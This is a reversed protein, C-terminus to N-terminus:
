VRRMVRMLERGKRGEYHQTPRWERETEFLGDFMADLEDLTVGYPPPEPIEDEDWPNLFFIALLHGGPRLAVHLAAAYELRRSPPLGSLCTHEFVWDFAGRLHEPLAFLDGLEYEEDGLPTHRQAGEIALPAIDFGVGKIGRRAFARVDHGYGCGPVFVRGELTNRSLFETLPPAAEGKDWPTTRAAYAGNWDTEQDNNEVASMQLLMRVM